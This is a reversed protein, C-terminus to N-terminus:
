NVSGAVPANLYITGVRTKLYAGLERMRAVSMRGIPATIGLAGVLSGRIKLPVAVCRVGEHTEELDMAYGDKGAQAVRERLDEPTKAALDSGGSYSLRGLFDDLDDDSLASLYAKGQASCHMPRLAGVGESVSVVHTTPYYALYMMNLEVPVGLIASDGTEDRIERLVPNVAQSWDLPLQTSPALALIKATAVAYRKTAQDRLVYGTDVLEALLRLATSRNTGLERGLQAASLPGDALLELTRIVRAVLSGPRAQEDDVLTM